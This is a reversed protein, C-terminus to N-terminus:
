AFITLFFYFTFAAEKFTDYMFITELCNTPMRGNM